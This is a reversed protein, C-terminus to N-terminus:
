VDDDFDQSLLFNAALEENKDCAFYAQVAETESFGLAMLRSIADREAPTINIYTVGQPMDVPPASGSGSGAAPAATGAADPAGPENLMEVFRQQNQTIVQLLEPNSQSLQQLLVQLLQPNQRVLSRMQLFQPQGRLFELPDVAQVTSAAADAAPTTSPPAASPGGHPVDFVAPIETTLYEVARDPNNFSARLALVVREREFGMAVISELAQEYDAGTALASEASRSSPLAQTGSVSGGGGSSSSSSLLAAAASGSASANSIAPQASSVPPSPSAVNAAPVVAAAPSSAPQAVVTGGAASTTAAAAPAAAAPTTTAPAAAPAAPKAKTVFLVIFDKETVKYNSLPQDDELVKGAFILKQEAVSHDKGKMEQIKEKLQQVTQSIDFDIKFTQQQLNKITILM